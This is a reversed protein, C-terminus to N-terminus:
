LDKYLEKITEKITEKEKTYKRIIKERWFENDVGELKKALLKTYFDEVNLYKNGTGLLVDYKLKTTKAAAVIDQIGDKNVDSLKIKNEVSNFFEYINISEKFGLTTIGIAYITGVLGGVYGAGYRKLHDVM